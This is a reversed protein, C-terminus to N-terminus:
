FEVEGGGGGGGGRGIKILTIFRETEHTGLAPVISDLECEKMNFM